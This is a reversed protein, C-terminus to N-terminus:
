ESKKDEAQPYNDVDISIQTKYFKRSLINAKLTDSINEKGLYNKIDNYTIVMNARIIKGVTAKDYPNKVINYNQVGIGNFIIANNVMEGIVKALEDGYTINTDSPLEVGNKFVDETVKINCIIPTNAIYPINSYNVYRDYNEWNAFIFSTQDKVENKVKTFLDSFNVIHSNLYCLATEYSNSHKLLRSIFLASKKIVSISEIPLDYSISPNLLDPDFLIFEKLREELVKKLLETIEPVVDETSPNKLSSLYLLNEVVDGYQGSECNLISPVSERHKFEGFGFAKVTNEALKNLDLPNNSIEDESFVKDIEFAPYVETTPIMQISYDNLDDYVDIFRDNLSKFDSCNDKITFYVSCFDSTISDFTVYPNNTNNLIDVVSKVFSCENNPKKTAKEADLGEKLLSFADEGINYKGIITFQNGLSDVYKHGLKWNKTRKSGFASATSFIMYKSGNKLASKYIDGLDRNLFFPVGICKQNFAVCVGDYSDDSQRTSLRSLEALCNYFYTSSRTDIFDFICELWAGKGINSSSILYKDGDIKFKINFNAITKTSTSSLCNKVGNGKLNDCYAKTVKPVDWDPTIVVKNDPGIYVVLSQPVFLDNKLENIM